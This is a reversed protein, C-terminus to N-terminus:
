LEPLKMNKRLSSNLQGRGKSHAWSNQRKESCSQVIKTGALPESGWSGRQWLIECTCLTLYYVCCVLRSRPVVLPHGPLTNKPNDQRCPTHGAEHGRPGRPHKGVLFVRTRCSRYCCVVLGQAQLYVLLTIRSRRCCTLIRIMGGSAKGGVVVTRRAHAEGGPEVDRYGIVSRESGCCLRQMSVMFSAQQTNTQAHAKAALTVSANTGASAPRAASTEAPARWADM